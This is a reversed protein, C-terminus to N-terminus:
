FCPRLIVEWTNSHACFPYVEGLAERVIQTTISPFYDKIDVKLFWRSGKDQHVKMASLTNRHKVFGHVPNPALFKAHRIITTQIIKQLGKLEDSPALITRYGGKAKPIRFETYQEDISGELHNMYEISLRKLLIASSNKIHEMNNTRPQEDTVKTVIKGRAKRHWFYRKHIFSTTKFLIIYVNLDRRKSRM